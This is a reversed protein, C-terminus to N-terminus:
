AVDALSMGTKLATTFGELGLPDPARDLLAEYLAYVSGAQSAASREVFGFLDLDAASPGTLRIDLNATATQGNGTETYTFHDVLGAVAKTADPTYTFSGDANLVVNGYQGALVHGVATTQGNVATVTLSGGGPLTDNYLVGTAAAAFPRNAAATYTDAVPVPSTPEPPPPAPIASLTVNTGTGAADAALTFQYGNPAANLHIIDSTAGNMVTLVNNAYTYSAGTASINRLNLVDGDAAFGTLNYALEFSAGGGSFAAAEIRLTQAGATFGIAGTGAAGATIAGFSGTTASNLDLTGAVLTTGGTYTNAGSLTLTGGDSKILSGATTDNHIVSTLTANAGATKIELSGTIGIGGTLGGNTIGAATNLKLSNTGGTFTLADAQIGLTGTILGNNIVSIGNGAAQVGISGSISGTNTLSTANGALSIGIGVTNTISGGNVVTGGSTVYVAPNSGANIGTHSISGVAENTLTGGTVTLARDSAGTLVGANSVSGRIDLTGTVTLATGTGFGVTGALIWTSNAAVAGTEFNEFNAGTGTLTGGGAEFTFADTDAGGNVRGIIATSGTRLLLTDNGAAFSVATGGNGTIASGNALTLTDAFAGNPNSGSAGFNVGTSGTITGANSVTGAGDFITIGANSGTGTIQGGAENTVTGGGRMGIGFFRTGTIMGSNIITGSVTALYIGRDGSISGSNTITGGGTAIVGGAVGGTLVGQNDLLLIGTSTIARSAGTITGTSTNTVTLANGSTPNRIGAYSGSILGENTVTLTAGTQNIGDRNITAGSNLITGSNTISGYANAIAAADGLNTIRGTSTITLPSTDGAAGLVVNTRDTSITSM